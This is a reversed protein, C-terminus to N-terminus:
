GDPSANIVKVEAGLRKFVMPALPSAAGNACDLAIRLGDLKLGRGVQEVLYNIYQERYQPERNEYEVEDFAEAAAEISALDEEIRREMRDDLKKGSPSFVKIGNDRYPNHSASIVVGADFDGARTIYAVGPTTIVGASEVRAGASIAGQALTREIEPGSQRTDRGIVVRPAHDLERALNSVLSRGISRTTREDLPFEGAVGRIGDTGFLRQEAGNPM